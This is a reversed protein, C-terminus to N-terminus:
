PKNNKQVFIQNENKSNKIDKIIDDLYKNDQVIYKIKM